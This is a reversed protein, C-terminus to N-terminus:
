RGAHSGGKAETVFVWKEAVTTRTTRSQVISPMNAEGQSKAPQSPPSAPDQPVLSKGTDPNV